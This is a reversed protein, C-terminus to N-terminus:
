GSQVFSVAEFDDFCIFIYVIGCDALQTPDSSVEPIDDNAGEQILAADQRERKM